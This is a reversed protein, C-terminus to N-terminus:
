DVLISHTQKGVKMEFSLGSTKPNGVRKPLAIFNPLGQLTETSISIQYNGPPLDKVQYSGDENVSAMRNFESGDDRVSTFELIGGTLANQQYEVSGSLQGMTENSDGCGNFCLLCVLVLFITPRFGFQGLTIKMPLGFDDCIHFTRKFISRAWYVRRSRRQFYFRDPPM